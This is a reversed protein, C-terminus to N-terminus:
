RQSVCLYHKAREIVTGLDGRCLSLCELLSCRELLVFSVPFKTLIVECGKRFNAKLKVSHDKFVKISAKVVESSLMTSVCRWQNLVPYCAAGGGRISTSHLLFV